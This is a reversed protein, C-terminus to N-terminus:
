GVPINSLGFTLRSQKKGSDKNGKEGAIISDIFDDDLPNKQLRDSNGNIQAIAAIIEYAQQCSMEYFERNKVHRLSPNLTDILNHLTGDELRKKVKFIAYCHFMDPLGSNSNLTKLRSQLNNAYGIKVLNQFAPNVLIYIVGVFPEKKHWGYEYGRNKLESQVKSSFSNLHNLLEDDTLGTLDLGQFFESM